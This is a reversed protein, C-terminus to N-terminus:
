STRKRKKEYKWAWPNVLYEPRPLGRLQCELLKLMNKSANVDRNRRKGIPNTGCSPCLRYRLNVKNNIIMPAMVSECRHCCKSTNDEAIGCIHLREKLQCMGMVRNLSKTVGETPVSKEGKGGSAFKADGRGLAGHRKKDALLPKLIQKWSGDLFRKKARLRSMKFFAREKMDVQEMKLTTMHRKMISLTREWVDLKGNRFGGAAAIEALATGWQTGTMRSKEWKQLQKQRQINYFRRRKVVHITGEEDTTVMLNVRGDDEGIKFCNDPHVSPAVKTRKVEHRLPRNSLGLRLGVGDTSIYSIKSRPPLCSYGQKRWKKHFKKGQHKKRLSRRIKSRRKNFLQRTLGLLKQLETGEHGQTLTLMRKREKAPFLSSVTKADLYAFTRGLTSIPLRSTNDEKFVQQLWLHLTWTLDNLENLSGDWYSMGPDKLDLFQRFNLVWESDETHLQSSPRLPYFLAKRLETVYTERHHPRSELFKWLRNKLPTLVMTSVNGLYSDGMHNLPNDWGTNPMVSNPNCSLFSDFFDRHKLYTERILPDIAENSTARELWREPLFCKKVESGKKLFSPLQMRVSPFTDGTFTPVPVQLCALNALYSGRSFLCSYVKVYKEIEERLYSDEIHTYLYCPLTSENRVLSAKIQVDTLLHHDAAMWVLENKSLDKLTDPDHGRACLWQILVEKKVLDPDCSRGM